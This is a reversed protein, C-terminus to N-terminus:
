VVYAGKRASHPPAPQRLLALEVMRQCLQPYDLGIAAAAKPLLSTATMGPLTNVELVVPDRLILGRHLYNGAPLRVRGRVRAAADIAAQLADTDDTVGDGAAGAFAAGSVLGAAVGLLVRRRM